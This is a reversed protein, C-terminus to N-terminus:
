FIWLNWMWLIFAPKLGCVRSQPDFISLNFPNHKDM